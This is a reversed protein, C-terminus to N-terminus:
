APLAHAILGEFEVRLEPAFDELYRETLLAKLRPDPCTKIWYRIEDEPYGLERLNPIWNAWVDDLGKATLHAVYGQYRRYRVQVLLGEPNPETEPEFEPGYTYRGTAGKLLVRSDDM